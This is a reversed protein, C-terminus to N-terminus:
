LEMTAINEMNNINKLSLDCEDKLKTETKEAYISLDIVIVSLQHSIM